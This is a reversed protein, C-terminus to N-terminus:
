YGGGVGRLDLRYATDVLVPPADSYIQIDLPLALRDVRLRFESATKEYIARWSDPPPGPGRWKSCIRAVDDARPLLIGHSRERLVHMVAKFLVKRWGRFHDRIFAPLDYTLDSQLICICCTTGIMKGLAFCIAPYGDHRYHSFFVRRLYRRVRPPYYLESTPMLAVTFNVDDRMDDISTNLNEFLAFSFGRCGLSAFEAQAVLSGSIDARLQVLDISRCPTGGFSRVVDVVGGDGCGAAELHALVMGKPAVDGALAHKAGALCRLSNGHNLYNLRRWEVGGLAEGGPM